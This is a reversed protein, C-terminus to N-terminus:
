AAGFPLVSRRPESLGEDEFVIQCAAKKLAALIRTDGYKTIDPGQKNDLSAALFAPQPCFQGGWM